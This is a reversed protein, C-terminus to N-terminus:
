RTTQLFGTLDGQAVALGLLARWVSLRALADDIEAEALLRQAEAVEVMTGLGAKYRATAQTETDRAAQLEIPMNAAIRRSGDLAARAREVEGTVDQVIQEYRAQEARENYREIEKRAKLSAYDSIPFTVNLGVAWNQINPGLGSAANGTTGDPQVGTGRAHSAGELNFKPYWARELAKERAKVEEVGKNQAVASPHASAPEQAAGASEPPMELLKGAVVAVQAAPVGLVQGLAARGVEVAQRAQILRNGALALEARARSADGGPRLGNRTLSEVIESVARARDVGAQAAVVTQEAALVSLYADATAAGAQFRTVAVQADARQRTSEAAAVNAKRLGFDFPEWQVLVGVATGWVNGLSNTRLVPGSISPLIGGNPLTLGFVNNHSARNVQAIFDAHPLYSTRALNVAAAAASVQELSARIAPYKTSADAVARDLTIQSFALSFPSLLLALRFAARHIM